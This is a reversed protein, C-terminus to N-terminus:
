ELGQECRLIEDRPIRKSEPEEAGDEQACTAGPQDHGLPAGALPAVPQLAGQDHAGPVDAREDARSQLLM